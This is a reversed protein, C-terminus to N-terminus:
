KYHFSIENLLAVKKFNEGTVGTISVSKNSLWNINYGNPYGKSVYLNGGENGLENNAKILSIQTSYGTTAGCSREFIVVNWKEDPSIKSKVITNECMNLSFSYLLVIVGVIILAVSIGIIKFAKKMRREGLASTLQGYHPVSKTTFHAFRAV